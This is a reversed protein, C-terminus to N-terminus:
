EYGAIWGKKVAAEFDKLSKFLEGGESAKDSSWMDLYILNGPISLLSVFCLQDRDECTRTFSAALCKTIDIDIGFTDRLTAVLDEPDERMMGLLDAADAANALNGFAVDWDHFGTANQLAAQIKVIPIVPGNLHPASKFNVLKKIEEDTYVTSLQGYLLKLEDQIPEPLDDNESYGKLDSMLHAFAERARSFDTRVECVKSLNDRTEAM